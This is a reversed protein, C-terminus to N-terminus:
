MAGNDKLIEFVDLKRTDTYEAINDVSTGDLYMEVIVNELGQKDIKKQIANKDLKVGIFYAILIIIITIGAKIIIEILTPRFMQGFVNAVFLLIALMVIILAVKTYVM